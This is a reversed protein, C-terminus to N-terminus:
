PEHTKPSKVMLGKAKLQLREELIILAHKVITETDFEETWSKVENLYDKVWDQRHYLESVCVIRKIEDLLEEGLLIMYGYLKMQNIWWSEKYLSKTGEPDKTKWDVIFLTDKNRWYRDPTGILIGEIDTIKPKWVTSNSTANFM